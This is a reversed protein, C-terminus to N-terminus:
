CRPVTRCRRFGPACLASPRACGRSTGRRGPRRVAGAALYARLVDLLERILGLHGVHRATEEFWLHEAWRLHSVLGAVTMLLQTREDAVFPPRGHLPPM